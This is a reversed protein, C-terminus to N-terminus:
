SLDTQFTKNIWEKVADPEWLYLQELIEEPTGQFEMM